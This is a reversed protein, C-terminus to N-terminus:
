VLLPHPFSLRVPHLLVYHFDSKDDFSGKYCGEWGMAALSAVSDLSFCVHRCTTHLQRADYILCPNSPEVSLLMILRPRSPGDSTRVEDFPVLCGRCVLTAVEGAVFECFEEPVRSPLTEGPFVVPNFPHEVSVERVDPLLLEYM